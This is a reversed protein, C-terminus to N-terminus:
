AISAFIWAAIRFRLFVVIIRQGQGGSLKVGKDGVLTQDGSEIAELDRELACAILVDKYRKEDIESGFLINDKINANVLWPQQACYAVSRTPEAEPDPQIPGRNSRESIYITGGIQTLEGLLSLLLSTKGSGTPGIILNLKGIAFKVNVNKLVFASTEDESIANWCFSGNGFGVIHNRCLQRYKETEPEKL